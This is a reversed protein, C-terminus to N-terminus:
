SVTIRIAPAQQIAAKASNVITYAGIKVNGRTSPRGPHDAQGADGARQMHKGDHIQIPPTAMIVPTTRGSTREM